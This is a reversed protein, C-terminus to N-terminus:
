RRDLRAAAARDVLWVANPLLGLQAPLRQPDREGAVVKGIIEAKAAGSVMVLVLRAARLLIPNFTIRPHHPGTHQPAPVSLVLQADERLARSGPFVSLIHGDPGVGLLIVDLAPLGDRGTPLAALLSEAYRQAVLGAPDSESLTEDVEYPHVNEARIPLAPVDGAAVDVGQGGVGSMGARAPSALLMNYALGVNSDPHDVPVFREDGWWLHVHRWDVASHWEPRLLERYLAVASSGGTLALHAEGRESVAQELAAVMRRAAERAVEEEDAVTVIEPAAM